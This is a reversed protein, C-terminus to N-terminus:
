SEALKRIFANTGTNRHSLKFSNSLSWDPKSNVQWETTNATPFQSRQFSFLLQRPNPSFIFVVAFVFIFHKFSGVCAQNTFLGSKMSILCSLGSQSHFLQIHPWRHFLTQLATLGAHLFVFCFLCVFFRHFLTQLATLGAHVIVRDEGAAADNADQQHESYKKFKRSYVQQHETKKNTKLIFRNTIQLRETFGVSAVRQCPQDM